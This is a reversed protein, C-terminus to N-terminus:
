VYFTLPELGKWDLIKVLFNKQLKFALINYQSHLATLELGVLVIKILYRRPPITFANYKFHLVETERNL